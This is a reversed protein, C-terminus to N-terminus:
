RRSEQFLPPGPFTHLERRRSCESRHDRRPASSPAVSNGTRFPQKPRNLMERGSVPRSVIYRFRNLEIPFVPGPTALSDLRKPTAGYQNVQRSRDRHRVIVPESAFATAPYRNAGLGLLHESDFRGPRASQDLDCPMESITMRGSLQPFIDYNDPWVMHKGIHSSTQTAFDLCQHFRKVRFAASIMGM